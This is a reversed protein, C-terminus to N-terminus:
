CNSFISTQADGIKKQLERTARYSSNGAGVPEPDISRVGTEVVEDITKPEPIEVMEDVAESSNGSSM